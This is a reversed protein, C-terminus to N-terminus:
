HTEVLRSIMSDYSQHDFEIHERSFFDAANEVADQIAALVYAQCHRSGVMHAPVSSEIRLRRNTRDFSHFRMGRFPPVDTSGPVLFYLDLHPDETNTQRGSMSTLKAAVRTLAGVFPSDSLGSEPLYAGCYLTM